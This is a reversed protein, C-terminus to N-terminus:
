LTGSHARAGQTGSSGGVPSTCPPEVRKIAFVTVLAGSISHAANIKVKGPLEAFLEPVGDGFIVIM